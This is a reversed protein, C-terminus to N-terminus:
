MRAVTAPPASQLIKEIQARHEVLHALANGLQQRVSNTGGGPSVRVAAAEHEDYALLRDRFASRTARWRQLGDSPWVNFRDRYYRYWFAIERVRPHDRAAHRLSDDRQRLEVMAGPDLPGVDDAADDHPRIAEPVAGGAAHALWAEQMEGVVRLVKRATWSVRRNEINWGFHEVRKRADFEQARAIVQELATRQGQDPDLPWIELRLLNLVDGAAIHDVVMRVSWGTPGDRRDWDGPSLKHLRQEILDEREQLLDLGARLVTPAVPMFVALPSGWANQWEIVEDADGIITAGLRELDAGQEAARARVDALAADRSELGEGAPHILLGPM